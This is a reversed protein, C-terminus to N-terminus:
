APGSMAAAIGARNLRGDHLASAVLAGAAGCRALAVLDEGGRVGGAAFIKRDRARASIAAIRDLDPGEDMGVRTLTMVIVRAPWHGDAALVAADGGLADGRYDLSLVWDETPGLATVVSADAMTETGLVPTAGYRTGWARCAAADSLGSDVWIEVQPFAERLAAVEPVNDGRREIADLDAVYLAAFPHLDLLAEAVALPASGACLASRIPEYRERAGGRAHVVRGGKLDIVPIVQM